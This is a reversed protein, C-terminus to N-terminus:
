NRPGFVKLDLSFRGPGVAMLVLSIVLYVAAPEASAGGTLNFFPDGLIVAHLLTAVIMTCLMGFSALPTLLGFIWAIGGGFEAIAALLQFIGPVGSTEPMWSMPAQIKGWGHAIMASGAMLRLALMALSPYLPLTLPKFLNMMKTKM